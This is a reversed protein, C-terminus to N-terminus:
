VPPGHESSDSDSSDMEQVVPKKKKKKAPAPEDYESDESETISAEDIMLDPVQQKMTQYMEDAQKSIIFGNAKDFRRWKVGEQLRDRICM